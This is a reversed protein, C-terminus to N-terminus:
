VAQGDVGTTDVIGAAPASADLTQWPGGSVRRDVEYGAVGTSPSAPWTVHVAGGAQPTATVAGPPLPAQAGSLKVDVAKAGPVSVRLTGDLRGAHLPNASVSIKADKGVPVRSHSGGNAFSATIAQSGLVQIQLDLPAASTNTIEVQEPPTGPLVRDFYIAPIAVTGQSDSTAVDALDTVSPRVAKVAEPKGLHGISSPISDLFSPAVSTLSLVGLIAYAAVLGVTLLAAAALGRGRRLPPLRTPEGWRM